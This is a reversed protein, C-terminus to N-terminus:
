VRLSHVVMLTLKREVIDECVGGKKLNGKLNLYDDYIQFAAGTGEVIRILKDRIAQETGLVECVMKVMMRLLAGTKSIVMRM